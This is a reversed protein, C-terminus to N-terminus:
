RGLPLTALIKPSNRPGANGNRARPYNYEATNLKKSMCAVLRMEGKEDEQSLTAGPATDSADTHGHFPKGVDPYALTSQALNQIVTEFAETARRGVNM